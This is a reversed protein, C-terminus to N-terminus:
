AEAACRLLIQRVADESLRRTEVRRHVGSSSDPESIAVLITAFRLVGRARIM